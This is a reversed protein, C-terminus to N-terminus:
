IILSHGNRLCINLPLKKFMYVNLPSLTPALDYVTVFGLM